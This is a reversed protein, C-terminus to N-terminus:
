MGTSTSAPVLMPQSDIDRVKLHCVENRRLRADFLTLLLTRHYLNKANAILRQVEDPSLV